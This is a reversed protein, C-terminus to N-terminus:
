FEDYPANKEIVKMQIWNIGVIVKYIIYDRTWDCLFCFSTRENMYYVEWAYIYREQM